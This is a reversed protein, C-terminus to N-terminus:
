ASVVCANCYKTLFCSRPASPADCSSSSSSSTSTSALHTRAFIDCLRSGPPSHPQQGPTKTRSHSTAAAAPTSSRCASGESCDCPPRRLHVCTKSRRCEAHNETRLSTSSRRPVRRARSAGKAAAAAESALHNPGDHHLVTWTAAHVTTPSADCSGPCQGNPPRGM